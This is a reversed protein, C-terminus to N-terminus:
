GTTTSNKVAAAIKTVVMRRGDSRKDPCGDGDAEVL